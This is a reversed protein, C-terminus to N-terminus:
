LAVPVTTAKRVSMAVMRYSICPTNKIPASAASSAQFVPSAFTSTSISAANATVPVCKNPMKQPPAKAASQTPKASIPSPQLSPATTTGRVRLRCLLRGRGRVFTDLLAPLPSAPAQLASSAPQVSITGRSLQRHRASSISLVCNVTRSVRQMLYGVLLLRILTM